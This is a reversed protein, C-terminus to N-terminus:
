CQFLNSESNPLCFSVSMLIPLLLSSINEEGASGEEALRFPLVLIAITFALPIRTEMGLFSTKQDTRLLSISLLTIFSEHWGTLKFNASLGSPFNNALILAVVWSSSCFRFVLFCIRYLILTCCFPFNLISWEFHNSFITDSFFFCHFLTKM